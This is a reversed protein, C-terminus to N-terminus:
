KRRSSYEPVGAGGFIFQQPNQEVGALVRDLRELAQRGQDAMAVLSDLGRGSFKAVNATIPDIRAKLQDATERISKAADTAEKILGQGDGDVYRDVKAIVGDTRTAIGNLQEVLTRTDGIMTDIDARRGDVTQGLRSLSSSADHVDALIADIQPRYSKLSSAFGSVDDVTSRVKAPDVATVVDNVGGLVSQAKDTVDSFRTSADALNRTAADVSGLISKVKDQDIAAMLDSARQGALRINESAGTLSKVLTDVDKPDFSSLVDQARGVTTDLAKAADAINTMMDNVVKPDIGSSVAEANALIKDLRESSSVLRQVMSSVDSPNVANLLEEARTSAGKLSSAIEKAAGAADSISALTGGLADSNDALAKSFKEVNNVTRNFAPGNEAIFDDIAVMANDARTLVNRASELIDQFPSIEAQVTPM